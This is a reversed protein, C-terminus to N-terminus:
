RVTSCFVFHPLLFSIEHLRPTLLRDFLCLLRGHGGLGWADMSQAEATMGKM